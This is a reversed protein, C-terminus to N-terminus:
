DDEGCILDSEFRVEWVTALAKFKERLEAKTLQSDNTVVQVLDAYQEPTLSPTFTVTFPGNRALLRFSSNEV